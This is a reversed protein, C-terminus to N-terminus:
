RPTRACRKRWAKMDIHLLFLVKKRLCCNRITIVALAQELVLSEGSCWPYRAGPYAAGSKSQPMVRQPFPFLITAILFLHLDVWRTIKKIGYARGFM